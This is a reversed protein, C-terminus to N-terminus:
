QAPKSVAEPGKAQQSTSWNLSKEAAIEGTPRVLALHLQLKHTAASGEVPGTVSEVSSLDSLGREGHVLRKTDDYIEWTLRYGHLPYSPLSAASKPKVTATFSKPVEEGNGWDASITAPANIEKWVFYSPKRQRNEDVLGHDIWGEDLGLRLNRRSKYDQYCWFIAGAIWDRRALEPMQEEIIKVRQRDADEGDKAFIGHLGFESIIVMKHPFMQDVKDLSTSLETEPGHWSGFYQNMMLFDADDAASDQARKLKPLNDDAYSVFRGPDLAKIVDRM